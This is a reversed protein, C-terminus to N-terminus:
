LSAIAEKVNKLHAQLDKLKDEAKELRRAEAEGMPSSRLQEVQKKKRSISAMLSQKKRELDHGDRPVYHRLKEDNPLAGHLKYHRIRRNCREINRQVIQIEESTGAREQKTKATHLSNSLDAREAYLKRQRIRENKLIEDEPDDDQETGTSAAIGDRQTERLKGVIQRITIANIVTHGESRYKPLLPHSPHLQQLEDLYDQFQIKTMNIPISFQSNIWEGNEM